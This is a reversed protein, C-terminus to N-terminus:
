RNALNPVRGAPFRTAVAARCGPCGMVHAELSYAEAGSAEGSAYRELSEEPAHWTM